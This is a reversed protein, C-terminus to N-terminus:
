VSPAPLADECLKRAAELDLDQLASELSDVLDDSLVSLAQRGEAFCQLVEFDDAAALAMIHHLVDRAACHAAADAAQTAAAPVAPALLVIAEQLRAQTTRVLAEFPALHPEQDQLVAGTKCLAEWHAAQAALATAGLMGANGKLTHLQMVAAQRDGSALSHQLGAVSSDLAKVFDRAARAYLMRMGAMRDLAARLDLGEFEPLTSHANDPEEPAQLAPGPPHFGTTRILLSVLRAMDFPKGIHDNMGAAVCIDRDNAMANATMAIIPLRALGLDNRIARTAGYGDLVPMQVDMLVVDFQPV